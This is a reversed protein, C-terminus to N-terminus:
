GWYCSFQHRMCHLHSKKGKYNVTFLFQHRKIGLMSFMAQCSNVSYLVYKPVCQSTLRCSFKQHHYYTNDIPECSSKRVLRGHHGLLLGLICVAIPTNIMIFHHISVWRVKISMVLIWTPPDGWFVSRVARLIICRTFCFARIYTYREAITTQEWRNLVKVGFLLWRRIVRHFIVGSDCSLM